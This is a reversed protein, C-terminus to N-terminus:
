NLTKFLDDSKRIVISDGVYNTIKLLEALTILIDNVIPLM